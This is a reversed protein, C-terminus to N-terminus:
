FCLPSSSSAFFYRGLHLTPCMPCSYILFTCTLLKVTLFGLFCQKLCTSITLKVWSPVFQIQNQSSPICPCYSHRQESTEAWFLQIVDHTFRVRFASQLLFPRCYDSQVPCTLLSDHMSDSPHQASTAVSYSQITESLSLIPRFPPVHIFVRCNEVTCLYSPQTKM